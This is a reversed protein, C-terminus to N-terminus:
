DIPVTGVDVALLYPPANCLIKSVEGVELICSLLHLPCSSEYAKSCLPAGHELSPLIKTYAGAIIQM